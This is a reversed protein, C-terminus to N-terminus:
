GFQRHIDRVLAGITFTGYCLPRVGQVLGAYDLYSRTLRLLDDCLGVMTHVHGRQDGDIPRTDDALLLDFGARLSILPRCIEHSLNSLIARIEDHDFISPAAASGACSSAEPNADM